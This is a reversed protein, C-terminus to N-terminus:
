RDRGTQVKNDSQSTSQELVNIRDMNIMVMSNKEFVISYGYSDSQEVLIRNLYEAVFALIVFQISSLLSIIFVTSTWGEVVNNKFVNLIISYLSFLCAIASGSLGLLSMLRLPKTSNFFMLKLTTRVSSLLSKKDDISLKEYKLESQTYGSKQIQMFFQQYFRGTDMVSNLARRSLCRFSTADKPLRYDAINLMWGSLPRLIRYAISQKQKATGVIVDNGQRCLNISDTILSLPDSKLDFCVIFDGIANETGASWIVDSNVDSSLQLYRICPVDKLIHEMEVAIAKQVSKQAMLIIEYDSFKKDLEHQIDSLRTLSDINFRNVATIVSVFSEDKAIIEM